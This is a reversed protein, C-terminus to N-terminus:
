FGRGGGGHPTDSSSIHTNSAAAEDAEKIIRAVDKISAATQRLENQIKINQQKLENLKSKYADAANGEWAGDIASLQRDIGQLIDACDDAANELKRAQLLTSAYDISIFM